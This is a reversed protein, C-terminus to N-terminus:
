GSPLSAQAANLVPACGTQQIYIRPTVNGPHVPQFGSVLM